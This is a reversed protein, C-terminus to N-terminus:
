LLHLDGLHHVFQGKRLCSLVELVILYFKSMLLLVVKHIFVVPYV